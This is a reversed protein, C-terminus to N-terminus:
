ALGNKLVAVSSGHGEVVKIGTGQDFVVDGFWAARPYTLEDFCALCCSALGKVEDKNRFDRPYLDRRTECKNFAYVPDLLRLSISFVSAESSLKDMTLCDNGQCRAIKLCRRGEGLAMRQFGIVGHLQCYRYPIMIEQGSIREDENTAILSEERSSLVFSKGGSVGELMGHRFIRTTTGM